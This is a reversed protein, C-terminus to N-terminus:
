IEYGESVRCSEIIGNFYVDHGYSLMNWKWSPIFCNSSVLKLFDFLKEKCSSLCDVAEM